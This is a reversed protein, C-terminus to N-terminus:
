DAFKQLNRSESRTPSRRKRNDSVPGRGARGKDPDSVSHQDHPTGTVDSSRNARTLLLVAATACGGSVPPVAASPAPTAHVRCAIRQRMAGQIRGQSAHADHPERVPGFMNGLTRRPIATNATPRPRAGDRLRIEGFLERAPRGREREIQARVHVLRDLVQPYRGPTRWCPEASPEEIPHTRQYSRMLAQWKTRGGVPPVQIRKGSAM